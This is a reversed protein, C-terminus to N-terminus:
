GANRRERDAARTLRRCDPVNPNCWAPKKRKHQAATLFGERCTRLAAALSNAKAAPFTERLAREAAEWGARGGGAQRYARLVVSACGARILDGAYHPRAQVDGGEDGASM